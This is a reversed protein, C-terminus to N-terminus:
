KLLNISRGSEAKVSKLEDAHENEFVKLEDINSAVKHYAAAYQDLLEKCPKEFRPALMFATEALAETVPLMVGASSRDKDAYPCAIPCGKGFVDGDTFLRQNHLRGYGCPGCAVGEANIAKLFTQLKIGGLKEKDYRVYHYAYIRKGGECIKQPIICEIDSIANELYLANETRIANKADLVDLEANAIAIGLPHARYKHGMGTMSYQRYSSDEPLNGLREYLGLATAREYYDRNNTILIGGEGAVLTKSGQLSFCGIDGITGVKKGKYSAGHAHSADEIVKLNYKKAIEMIPDMDAPTGWCHVVMIAKTKPTIRREVDKPDMIHTEKDVDCFVPIGNTAVIPSASAWYTFSPVIVEDGPGVGVAFLASHLCSTGNIMAIGYKAGTYKCFKREFEGVVPSSSIEGKECLSVVANIADKSVLPLAATEKYDLTVTKPGGLLSLNAM